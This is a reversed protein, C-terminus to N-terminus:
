SLSELTRIFEAVPQRAASIQDANFPRGYFGEHFRSAMYYQGRLYPPAGTESVLRNVSIRLLDHTDHKWGLRQATAKIAHAAAGWLLECAVETEGQALQNDVLSLLHPSLEGYYESPRLVTM